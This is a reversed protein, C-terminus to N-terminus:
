EEIVVHVGVISYRENIAGLGTDRALLATVRERIPEAISPHTLFTGNNM